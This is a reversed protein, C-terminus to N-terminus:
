ARGLDKLLRKIGVDLFRVVNPIDLSIIESLLKVNPKVLLSSSDADLEKAPWIAAIRVLIVSIKSTFSKGERCHLQM